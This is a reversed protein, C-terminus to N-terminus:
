RSAGAPAQRGRSRFQSGKRPLRSELHHTQIYYMLWSSCGGTFVGTCPLPNRLHGAQERRCATHVHGRRCEMEVCPKELHVPLRMTGSQNTCVVHDDLLFGAYPDWCLVEFFAGGAATTSSGASSWM